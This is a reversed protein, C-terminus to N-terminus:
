LYITDMRKKHEYISAFIKKNGAKTKIADGTTDGQKM